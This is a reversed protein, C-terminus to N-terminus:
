GVLTDGLTFHPCVNLSASACPLGDGPSFSLFIAAFVIETQEPADSCRFGLWRSLGNKSGVKVYKSVKFIAEAEAGWAHSAVAPM